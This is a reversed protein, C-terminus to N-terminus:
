LAYLVIENPYLNGGYYRIYFKYTPDISHIEDAIRIIDNNGHYISLALKPHENKIHEKAGIIADYEAGEIDSKIFTVKETIDNDLCVLEINGNKSDVVHSGSRESSNECMSVTGNKSGVACKRAIIRHDDLINIKDELIVSSESDCEYCYIKKFHGMSEKLFDDLTDGTYAGLDVFVEEESLQILERDFYHSYRHDNLCYNLSSCGINEWNLLVNLFIEKSWNDQLNKYLWIIKKLNNKLISARQEFVEFENEFPNFKGWYPYTNFSKTLKEIFDPNTKSLAICSSKMKEFLINEDYKDIFSIFQNMKYDTNNSIKLYKKEETIFSEALDIIQKARIEWTHKEAVLNYANDLIQSINYKENLIDNVLKPLESLNQLSYYFLHEKDQCENALYRSSDTLMISKMGMVTFVREHSGETYLPMVNLVIKSNAMEQLATTYDVNGHMCLLSKNESEFDEWGNGFVDVKIGSQLLTAIINHRKINRVYGYVFDLESMTSRFEEKSLIIQRRGLEEALIEELTNSTEFYLRNIIVEFLKHMNEDYNKFGELFSEPKTYSGFFSINHRRESFPIVNNYLEGGHPTFFVYPNNPYMEKVYSVHKMDIFSSITNRQVNLLRKDQYLPHDVFFKWVLINPNHLCGETLERKGMGNFSFFMDYDSLLKNTEFKYPYRNDIVDVDIGLKQFGDFLKEAFRTLVEYQTQGLIIVIKKIKM